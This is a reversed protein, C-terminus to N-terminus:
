CNQPLDRGSTTIRRLSLNSRQMFRTLWGQSAKFRTLGMENALVRAQQTMSMGSVIAGSERVQSIWQRLKKEMHPYECKKKTIVRSRVRKFPTKEIHKRQGLWRQVSRRAVGMMKAVGRISNGDNILRLARAKCIISLRTKCPNM